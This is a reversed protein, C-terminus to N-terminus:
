GWGRLLFIVIMVVEWANLALSIQLIQLQRQQRKIMGLENWRAEGYMFRELDELRDELTRHSKDNYFNVSSPGSSVTVNELDVGTTDGMVIAWALWEIV